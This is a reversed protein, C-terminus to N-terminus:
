KSLKIEMFWKVGGDLFRLSESNVLGSLDITQADRFGKRVRGSKEKMCGLSWSGLDERVRLCISRPTKGQGWRDQSPMKGMERPGFGAERELVM